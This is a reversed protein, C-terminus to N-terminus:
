HLGLLHALYPYCVMDSPKYSITADGGKIGLCDYEGWIDQRRYCQTHADTAERGYGGDEYAAAYTYNIPGMISYTPIKDAVDLLRHLEGERSKTKVLPSGCALINMIEYRSKMTKNDAFLQAVMGGLSHSAIVVKAGKPIHKMCFLMIADLYPNCLSFEALVCSAVINPNIFISGVGELMLLYIDEKVGNRTLVAKTIHIPGDNSKKGM